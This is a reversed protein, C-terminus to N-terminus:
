EILLVTCPHGFFFFTLLSETCAMRPDMCLGCASPCPLRLDAQELLSPYSIVNYNKKRNKSPCVVSCLSQDWVIPGVLSWGTFLSSGFAHLWSVIDPRLVRHLVFITDVLCCAPPYQAACVWPIVLCHICPNPHHFSSFFFSFFFCDILRVVHLLSPPWGATYFQLM